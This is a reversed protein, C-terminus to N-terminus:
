WFFFLLFVVEMPAGPRTARLLSATSHQKEHWVFNLLNILVFFSFTSSSFFCASFYLTDNDNRVGNWELGNINQCAFWHRQIPRLVGCWWLIVLIMWSYSCLFYTAKTKWKVGGGRGDIHFRTRSVAVRWRECLCMSVLSVDRTIGHSAM